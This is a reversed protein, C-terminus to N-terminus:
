QLERMTHEQYSCDTDFTIEGHATPQYKKPISMYDSGYYNRLIQDYGIPANIEVYEFPLKVIEKSYSEEWVRAEGYSLTTHAVTGTHEGLHKACVRNMKNFQRRYGPTGILLAAFSGTWRRIRSGSYRWSEIKNLWKERRIEKRHRERGELTSPVEDLVFIDIFIGRNIPKNRDSRIYGTTYGNRIQVHPRWFRDETLPCQFFYPERFANPGIELLRNYDRRPMILDIDDDWPIFGKHRVAGLLTGGLAFWKLQNEECVRAFELMLDIEVAWLEKTKKSIHYGCREEDELFGKPPFYNLSIM